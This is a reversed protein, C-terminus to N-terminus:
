ARERANMSIVPKDARLVMERKMVHGEPNTEYRLSSM